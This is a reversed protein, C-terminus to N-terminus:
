PIPPVSGTQEPPSSLTLFATSLGGFSVNQRSRAPTVTRAPKFTFTHHTNTRAL